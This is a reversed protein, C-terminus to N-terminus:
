KARSHQGFQGRRTAKWQSPILKTARHPHSRYVIRSKNLTDDLAYPTLFLIVPCPWTNVSHQTEGGVYAKKRQM